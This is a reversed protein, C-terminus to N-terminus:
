LRYYELYNTIKDDFSMEYEKNTAKVAQKNNPSM